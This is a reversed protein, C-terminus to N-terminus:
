TQKLMFRHVKGTEVKPLAPLSRNNRPYSYPAIKVKVHQQLVTAIYRGKPTTMWFKM